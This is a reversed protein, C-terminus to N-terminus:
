AGTYEVFSNDTEWLKLKVLSISDESFLTELREWLFVVLNEATPNDVFVNLNYHDLAETAMKVVEKIYHFDSVMGREPDCSSKRSKVVYYDEYSSTRNCDVFGERHTVTTELTYNHGHLRQCKGKHYPLSHAAAFSTIVTATLM